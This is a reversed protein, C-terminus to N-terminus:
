KGTRTIPDIYAVKYLKRNQKQNSYDIYITISILILNVLLCLGLSLVILRILESAITEDAATTVVYWDNIGVKEYHIFYIDEGLKADFTGTQKNGFQKQCKMLKKNKKKQQQHLNTKSTNM